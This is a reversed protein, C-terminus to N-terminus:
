KDEKRKKLALALSVLGIAGLASTAAVVSGGCGSSTKSAELEEIAKKLDAIDSSYDTTKKDELTKIREELKSTDSGTNKLEEIAKKLEDIESQYDKEDEKQNEGTVTITITEYYSTVKTTKQEIIQGSMESKKVQTVAEDIKVVFTYTGAKTPTGSIEGDEKVTIGEPLDGSYYSYTVKTSKGGTEDQDKIIDSQIYTVFEKGVEAKSVDDGNFKFASSVTITFDATASNWYDAYLKVSFKYTGASATVKGTISGDNSLTLGAPLSGSTIEYSTTADGIVDESAAISLSAECGQAVTGINGSKDYAIWIEEETGNRIMKIGNHNTQSNAATYLVRTAIMRADYYQVASESTACTKKSAAHNTRDYYNIEVGGVKVGGKGGRLSTDWTGSITSDRKVKVTNTGDIASEDHVNITTSDYNNPGIHTGKDADNVNGLPLDNGTRVMLDVPLPREVGSYGDTLLFGDWGWEDRCIGTNVEYDASASMMGIRVCATMAGSAGGEQLAMQFPKLYIERISQESAWNFLNDGARNTEQDNLALHKVICNLGRSQAGDVVAAAMYGASIPDESYYQHNRGSFPSRHTNMGPGYWGDTRKFMGLNGVIIGQKRALKTNFTAAVTPEDCWGYSSDLDVPDDLDFGEIKDISDVDATCYGGNGVVRQIEEWSLQNMFNTWDVTINGDSDKLAKGAMDKLKIPNSTNTTASQTWTDPISTNDIAWNAANANGVTDADKYDDTNDADYLEMGFVDDWFSQKFTRGATTQPRPFSNIAGTTSSDSVTYKSISTSTGLDDRDLLTMPDDQTNNFDNRITDYKGTFKASVENGSYDDLKLAVSDSGTITFTSEAYPGDQDTAAKLVGGTETTLKVHASDMARITYTGADLDYGKNGNNNLDNTDFSAMDQVNVQVEVIESAGPALYSTKGYGVLTVFSKQVGDNTYPATVYVQVTQKGGYKGTNTVLVPVYLTEVKAEHGKSSAFLSPAVTDGLSTKANTIKDYYYVDGMTFSFTSYSLGSGFTYAMNEEYWKDAAAVGEAKAIEYYRTEYYRYGLYINEEYDVGYFGGSGPGGSNSLSGAEKGSPYYYMNSDTRGVQSNDGFNFWTPDKSFDRSWTDVTRGSPNVTGSLIEGVAKMGSEGPRGAWLIANIKEDDKLDGIEMINSTNLVVIVKECQRKALDILEIESDTLELYHKKGSIENEHKGEIADEDITMDLDAGEGGTRSLFVIGAENYIDLSNLVNNTFHTEEKGYTAGGGGIGPAASSQSSSNNEYYSLLTPNVHYGEAELSEAPTKIRDSTAGSTNQGASVVNAQSAGFISVFAGKRLPLTGDNKLLTNGEENIQENLDAAAVQTDTLSYYDSYFKGNNDLYNHCNYVSSQTSLKAQNELTLGTGVVCLSILSLSIIKKNLYKM